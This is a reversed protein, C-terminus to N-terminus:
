QEKFKDELTSLKTIESGNFIRTLEVTPSKRYDDVNTDRVIRWLNKSKLEGYDAMEIFMGIIPQRDKFSIKVPKKKEKSLFNEIQSNTM